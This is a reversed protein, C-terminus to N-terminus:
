VHAARVQGRLEAVGPLLDLKGDKMVMPMSGGSAYGGKNMKKMGMEAKEHKIMSKPAGKKKMFSIEKKAMEKSEAKGGKAKKVVKDPMDLSLGPAALSRSYQGRPSTPGYSGRTKPGSSM